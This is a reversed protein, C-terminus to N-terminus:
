RPGCGASSIAAQEPLALAYFVFAVVSLGSILFVPNHIDLRLPRRRGRYQGSRDRLRDRHYGKARIRCSRTAILSDAM